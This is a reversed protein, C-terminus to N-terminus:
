KIIGGGIVVNKDDYFVVAQGPTVARQPRDFVVKATDEDAMSLTALAPKASYRVKAWVKIPETIKELTIFNLNDCLLEGSFEQGKEGLVVRNNEADIRTVFMPKGFAVGLGKRQGVTYHIIGKHKGLVNGEKDVFDGIEAKYNRKREIFGAYDNDPIFCIEMSDPKGAIDLGLTEAYKRTAEKNEVEGLPMLIKELQEQKLNYLVYTQDKEASESQKLYYRGTNEDLLIRAYHGTAIYDAGLEEAKGIMADFKLHKNCAICPNPTRGGLYEDVFYDVVKEQFEDRFDVIYHEIGLKECVKKADDCVSSLCAGGDCLLMTIGIVDYGKDLLMAAAVSSDVGGSMGIAVKKKM